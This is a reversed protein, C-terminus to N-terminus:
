STSPPTAKEREWAEVVDSPPGMRRLSYFNLRAKVRSSISFAKQLDEISADPHELLWMSQERYTIVNGGFHHWGQPLSQDTIAAVASSNVFMSFINGNEMNDAAAILGDIGSGFDKLMSFFTQFKETNGLFQKWSKPFPLNTMQCLASLNKFTKQMDGGYLRDSAAIYGNANDELVLIGKELEHKLIRFEATSGNFARWGELLKLKHGKILASLNKYTKHMEGGYFLNAIAIYGSADPLNFLEKLALSDPTPKSESENALEHFLSNLFKDALSPTKVKTNDVDDWHDFLATEKGQQSTRLLESRWSILNRSAVYPLSIGRFDRYNVIERQGNWRESAYGNFIEVLERRFEAEFRKQADPAPNGDLAEKARNKIQEIKGIPSEGDVAEWEGTAKDYKLKGPTRPPRLVEVLDEEGEQNTRINILPTPSLRSKRIWSQWAPNIHTIGDPAPLTVEPTNKLRDLGTEEGVFRRFGVELQAAIIRHRPAEVPAELM